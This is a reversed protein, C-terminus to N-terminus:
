SSAIAWRQAAPAVRAARFGGRRRARVQGVGYRANGTTLQIAERSAPVMRLADVRIPGRASDVIVRRSETHEAIQPLVLIDRLVDPEIRREPRGFGPGPATIYLDARITRTLYTRLSERFSGVMISVGIMSAIAAGWRPSRWAPAASHLRSTAPVRAKRHPQIARAVRSAALAMGRLVAPTIAAVTLLLLFLAIFGALLSRTSFLVIAGAAMALVVSM